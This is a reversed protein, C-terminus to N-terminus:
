FDWSPSFNRINNTTLYPQVKDFYVKEHLHFRKDKEREKQYEDFTLFRFVDGTRALICLCNQAVQEANGDQLISNKPCKSAFDSPKMTHAVPNIIVTTKSFQNTLLVLYDLTLSYGDREIIECIRERLKEAPLNLDSIEDAQEQTLDIKVKEFRTNFYESFQKHKCM